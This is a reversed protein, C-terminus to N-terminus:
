RRITVTVRGGGTVAGGAVAVAAAAGAHGTVALVIVAVVTLLGTVASIWGLVHPGAAGPAPTHNTSTM